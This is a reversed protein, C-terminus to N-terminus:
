YGAMIRMKDTSSNGILLGCQNNKIAAIQTLDALLVIWTVILCLAYVCCKTLGADLIVHVCVVVM